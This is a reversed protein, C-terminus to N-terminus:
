APTQRTGSPRLVPSYMSPTVDPIRRSGTPTHRCIVGHFQGNMIATHFHAGATAAPLVTTSLGDSSVGDDVDDATARVDPRCQGRM